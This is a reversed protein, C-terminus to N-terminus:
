GIQNVQTVAVFGYANEPLVVGSPNGDNTLIERMNYVHTDNPTYVDFFITKMVTRILM